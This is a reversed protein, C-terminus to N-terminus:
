LPGRWLTRPKHPFAGIPARLVTRRVLLTFGSVDADPTQAWGRTRPSCSTGCSGLMMSPPGDGRARPASSPTGRGTRRRPDMGAHAPLLVQVADVALVQRTWGRTRPSCSVRTPRYSSGVPGDGRARPASTRRTTQTSATPDMGAHAPLLAPRIMWWSPPRPGDGRARPATESVQPKGRALPGFKCSTSFQVGVWIRRLFSLLVVPDM